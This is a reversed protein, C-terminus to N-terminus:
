KKYVEKFYAPSTIGYGSDHLIILPLLPSEDSKEKKCVEVANKLLIRSHDIDFPRGKRYYPKAM